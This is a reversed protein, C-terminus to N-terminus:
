AYLGGGKSFRQYAPPLTHQFQFNASFPQSVLAPPLHTQAGVFSGIKGVSGKERSIAGGMMHPHHFGAGFSAFGSNDIGSNYTNALSSIRDINMASRMKQADANAISAKSLNGYQTGLHQNLNNLLHNQEVQGSLTSHAIKNVPGGVNNRTERHNGQYKSPNDLYDMGLAGLSGATGYILPIAGAGLGGSAITETGALATAGAGLGAVLAAKIAPKTADGIAYAVKKLGNKELFKDFKKGFIGSGSMQPSAEQNVAIEQPTLSIELGKGRNFTRTFLDLRSPDILLNFGEGEMVPKVRVKHGNRLKSLQKPSASIHVM